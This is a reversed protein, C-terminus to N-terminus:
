AEGEGLIQTTHLDFRRLHTEDVGEPRGKQRGTWNYFLPELKSFWFTYSSSNSSDLIYIFRGKNLLDQMVTTTIYSIGSNLNGALILIVKEGINTM